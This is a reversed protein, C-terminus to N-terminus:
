QYSGSGISGISSNSRPLSMVCWLLVFATASSVPLAVCESSVKTSDFFGVSHVYLSRYLQDVAAHSLGAALLQQRALGAAAAGRLGSALAQEQQQQLMACPQVGAPQQRQQRTGLADDLWAELQLAGELRSTSTSAQLM